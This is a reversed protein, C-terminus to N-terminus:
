NPQCQVATPAPPSIIRRTQDTSAGGFTIQGESVKLQTLRVTPQRRDGQFRLLAVPNGKNRYWTVEINRRRAIESIQDLVSQASIPLAGAHLGDLEVAVVNIDKPALWVKANISIITSLSASGYRFGIRISDPGLAVRPNSITDPFQLKEAFAPKLMDEAFFSNIQEETFTAEWSKRGNDIGDMLKFIFTKLFAESQDVRAKGPPIARQRYFNPVHRVVLGICLGIGAILLLLGGLSLLVRKRRM